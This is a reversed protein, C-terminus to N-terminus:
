NGTFTVGNAGIIHLMLCHDDSFGIGTFDLTGFMHYIYSRPFADKSVPHIELTKVTGPLGGAATQFKMSQAGEIYVPNVQIIPAELVCTGQTRLVVMRLDMRDGRTLHVGEPAAFIAKKYEQRPIDLTLAPSPVPGNIHELKDKNYPPFRSVIHFADQDSLPRVVINGRNMQVNILRAGPVDVRKVFGPENCEEMNIKVGHAHNAMILIAFSLKKFSIM